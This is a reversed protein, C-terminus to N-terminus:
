SYASFNKHPNGSISKEFFIIKPLLRITIGIIKIDKCISNVNQNDQSPVHSFRCLQQADNPRIM